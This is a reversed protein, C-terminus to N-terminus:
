TRRDEWIHWVLGDMTQWSTIYDSIRIGAPLERGTGVILFKRDEDVRSTEVLAWMCHLTNQQDVYLPIAGKPMKLTVPFLGDDISSGEVYFKHITRM